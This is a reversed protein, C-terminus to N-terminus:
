TSSVPDIRWVNKRLYTTRELKPFGQSSSFKREDVHLKRGRQTKM